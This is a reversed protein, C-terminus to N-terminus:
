KLSSNDSILRPMYKEQIKLINKLTYANGIKNILKGNSLNYEYHEISNKNDNLNSIVNVDLINIKLNFEIEIELIDNNEKYIYKKNNNIYTIKIIKEKNNEKYEYENDSVKKYGISILKDIYDQSDVNVISDNVSKDSLESLYLILEKEFKTKGKSNTIIIKIKIDNINISSDVRFLINSLSDKTYIIKDDYYFNVVINDTSLMEYDLLKINGIYITSENKTKVCIGEPTFSMRSDDKIDLYYISSPNYKILTILLAISSVLLIPVVIAFICFFIKIINDRKRKLKNIKGSHLEELTIKFIKCLKEQKAKDPFTTGLEWKSINRYDTGIQKALEYQTMKHSTRLKYLFEGSKIYDEKM